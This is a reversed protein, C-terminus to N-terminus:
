LNFLKVEGRGFTIEGIRYATEKLSSLQTLIKNTQKKSVVMVLGIGMNFVKFMEENEINGLRQLLTFIPPVRWSDTFIKADCNQPLIRKLNGRM